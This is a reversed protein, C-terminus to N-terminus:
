QAAPNVRKQIPGSAHVTSRFPDTDLAPKIDGIHEFDCRAIRMPATTVLGAFIGICVSSGRVEAVATAIGEM